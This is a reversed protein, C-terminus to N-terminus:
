KNKEGKLPNFYNIEYKPEQFNCEKRKNYHALVYEKIEKFTKRILYPRSKFYLIYKGNDRSGIVKQYTYEETIIKRIKSNFYYSM